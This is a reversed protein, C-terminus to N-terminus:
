RAININPHVRDITPDPKFTYHHGTNEDPVDPDNWIIRVPQATNVLSENKIGEVECM